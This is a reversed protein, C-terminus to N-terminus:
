DVEYGIIDFSTYPTRERCAVVSLYSRVGNLVAIDRIPCFHLSGNRADADDVSAAKLIDM